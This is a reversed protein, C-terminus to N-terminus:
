GDLKAVLKEFDFSIEYKELPKKKHEMIGHSFIAQFGVLFGDKTLKVRQKSDLKGCSCATSGEFGEFHKKIQRPLFLVGGAVLNINPWVSIVLKGSEWRYEYKSNMTSGRAVNATLEVGESDVQTGVLSFIAEGHARIFPMSALHMTVSGVSLGIAVAETHIQSRHLLGNGSNRFFSVMQNDSPSLQVSEFLNMNFTDSSGVEGALDRIIAILDSDANLIVDGRSRGSRVTGELMQEPTLGDCVLLQKAISAEFNTVLINGRALVLNGHFVARPYKTRIAAVSENLIGPFRRQLPRLDIIGTKGRFRPLEGMLERQSQENTRWRELLKNWRDEYSTACLFQILESMQFISFADGPMIKSEYIASEFEEVTNALDALDVISDLFNIKGTVPISFKAFKFDIQRIRERTVGFEDGIAELTIRQASAWPRRGMIIALERDGVYFNLYFMNLVAAMIEEYDSANRIEEIAVETLKVDLTPDLVDFFNLIALKLQDVFIDYQTDFYKAAAKMQSISISSLLKNSIGDVANKAAVPNLLIAYRIIQTLEQSLFKWDILSEDNMCEGIEYSFQELIPIQFEADFKFFEANEYAWSQLKSRIEELSGDGINRIDRIERENMSLLEGISRIKARLICNEARTNLQLVQLPVDIMLLDEPQLQKLKAQFIELIGWSNIVPTLDDIEMWDSKPIEFLGDFKFFEANEYAWSQLKSRIEELSGDGINRIDRIERENMSLLEGISRIKARLICNEARTNLQLVQLPVDIMLLDEPQLQKLKAQFIELIGWSNIAPTLDDIEM